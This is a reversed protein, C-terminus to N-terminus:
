NKIKDEVDGHADSLLRGIRKVQADFEDGAQSVVKHWKEEANARFSEASKVEFPKERTMDANATSLRQAFADALRGPTLKSTYAALFHAENTADACLQAARRPRDKKWAEKAADFDAQRATAYTAIENRIARQDGIAWVGDLIWGGVYVAVIAGLALLMKSPQIAMRFSKFIHTFAFVENWNIRRLEQQEDAM